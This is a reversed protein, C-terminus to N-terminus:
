KDEGLVQNIKAQVDHTSITCYILRERCEKLLAKFNDYQKVAEHLQESYWKNETKLKTNEAELEANIEVGENKALQDSLLKQYEEFSPVECIVADIINDPCDIWENKGNIYLDIRYEGRILRVYYWGNPLDGKKWKETLTKSVDANRENM